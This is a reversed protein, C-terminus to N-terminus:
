IWVFKVIHWQVSGHRSCSSSLCAQRSFILEAHERKQRICTHMEWAHCHNDESFRFVEGPWAEKPAERHRECMGIFARDFTRWWFYGHHFHVSELRVSSPRIADETWWMWELERTYNGSSNVSQSIRRIKVTKEHFSICNSWNEGQELTQDAQRIPLDVKWRIELRTHAYQVKM